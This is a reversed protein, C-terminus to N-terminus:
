RGLDAIQLVTSQWAAETISRLIRERDTLRAAM